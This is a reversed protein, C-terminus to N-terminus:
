GVTSQNDQKRWRDKVEGFLQFYCGHRIADNAHRMGTSYMGWHKLRSDTCFHKAVHAPQKVLPIQQLTLLTEIAGIIRPTLLSSNAHEDTKWRYVRYDECVVVEPQVELILEHLAQVGQEIPKTIIQSGSLLLMGKFVAVGTTHGPDLALINGEIPALNKQERSALVLQEFSPQSTTKNM